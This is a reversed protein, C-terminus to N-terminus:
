YPTAHAYSPCGNKGWMGNCVRWKCQERRILNPVRACKALKSQMYPSNHSARRPVERTAIRGSSSRARAENVVRRRESKKKLEEDAQQQIREIERDKMVRAASRHSRASKRPTAQPQADSRGEGREIPLTTGTDSRVPMNARKANEADAGARTESNGYAPDGYPLEAPNIKPISAAMGAAPPKRGDYPLESASIGSRTPPMAQVDRAASVPKWIRSLPATAPVNKAGALWWTAALGASAGLVFTLLMLLTRYVPRPRKRPAHEYRAALVRLREYDPAAFRSARREEPAPGQMGDSINAAIEPQAQM